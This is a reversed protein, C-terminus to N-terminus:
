KRYTTSAKQWSEKVKKPNSNKYNKNYINKRNIEKEIFVNDKRREKMYEKMYQKRKELEKM